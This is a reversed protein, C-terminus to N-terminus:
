PTATPAPTEATTGAAAAVVARLGAGDVPLNEQREGNVYVSPTGSVGGERAKTTQDQMFWTYDGDKIANIAESSTVGYKPLDAAYENYGWSVQTQAPVAFIGDMITFFLEPQHQIAGYTAAGARLGYDDVYRILHFVVVAEGDGILTKYEHGMAAHYDECHSCSYDYYYDVKVPANPDGVTVGDGNVTIPVQTTTGESTPVEITGSTEPVNRNGFWTPAMVAVLVVAAVVLIAGAIVGLQTLMRNRRQKAEEKKRLANAEERLKRIQERDKAQAM